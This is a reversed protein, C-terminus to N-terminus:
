RGRGPMRGELLRFRLDNREKELKASADKLTQVERRLREVEARWGALQEELLDIRQQPDRTERKNMTRVDYCRLVCSSAGDNVARGTRQLSCM